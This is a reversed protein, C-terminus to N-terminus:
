KNAGSGFFFFSFFFTLLFLFLFCSFLFLRVLVLGLWSGCDCVCISVVEWDRKAAELQSELQLKDNRFKRLEEEQQIKIMKLENVENKQHDIDRASKMSLEEMRQELTMKLMRLQTLQSKGDETAAESLALMRKLETMKRMTQVRSTAHTRLEEQIILLEQKMSVQSDIAKQMEIESAQQAPTLQAIKASLKSREARCEDLTQRLMTITSEMHKNKDRIEVIEMQMDKSEADVQMLSTVRMELESNDKTIRNKAHESLRLQSSYDRVEENKTRLTETVERLQLELRSLMGNAANRDDSAKKMVNEYKTQLHLIQKKMAAAVDKNSKATSSTSILQTSYEEKLQHLSMEHLEKSKQKSAILMDRESEATKCKKQLVSMNEQLHFHQWHVM